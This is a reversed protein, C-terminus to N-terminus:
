QGAAARLTALNTTLSEPTRACLTIHGLKRGPRPLKGYLHLHAQPLSLIQAPTPATGILNLMACHGLAATDGLPWGLIARLHNEFQSTVAGEITWHGSNHVRPAMENAMLDGNVLFLEIALVGVYGVRKLVDAAYTEARAQLDPTLSPAPAISLRLIGGKHENQTLPYFRTEGTRSRVSIISLERDFPILREVILPVGALQTWASELEAPNRVVAQGKGDYGMRRTKIVIPLGIKAVAAALDERTDVPAFDPTPIGLERFLTKETLRDQASELAEAPPFIPVLAALHRVATVPVNEFEYTIVDVGRALSDLAAPNNFDGEILEALGRVPAADTDLFRFTLGLPYGALALMRGLQGGGLIGVKV